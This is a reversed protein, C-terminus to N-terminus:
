AFLIDGQGLASVGPLFIANGTAYDVELGQVGAPDRAPNVWVTEPEIGKLIIRDTGPRFDTIRDRGDWAEFVFSDRGAGGSLVDLGQGGQLWDDGAGGALTDAGLSGALSQARWAAANGLADAGATGLRPAEGYGIDAASLGPQGMLLVSDRGATVM